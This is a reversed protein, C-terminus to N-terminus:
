GRRYPECFKFVNLFDNRTAIRFSKFFDLRNVIKYDLNTCIRNRIDLSCFSNLNHFVALTVNVNGKHILKSHHKVTHANIGVLNDVTHIGLPISKTKTWTKNTSM